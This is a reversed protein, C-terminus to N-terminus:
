ITPKSILMILLSRKKVFSKSLKSVLLNGYFQSKIKYTWVIYKQVNFLQYSLLIVSESVTTFESFQFAGVVNKSAANSRRLEWGVSLLEIARTAFGYWIVVTIYRYVTESSVLGYHGCEVYILDAWCAGRCEMRDGTMETNVGKMYM